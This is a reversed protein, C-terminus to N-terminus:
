RLGLEIMLALLTAEQAELMAAFEAGQTFADVWGNRDRIAAWEPTRYMAALTGEFAAARAPSINPAAFFGRWNLFVAGQAGAQTCTPTAPALTLRRESAICLIRVWNQRVLDIVESFGSALAQTEGSLLGAMAKGGTDYPIYKASRPDGGAGRLVMAAVLHDMGGTVSGGAFAVARPDARQRALLTQLDHIDSDQRVAIVSYDGITSAIPTLDRFSQPFIGRLSRIVIPTSNVMLMTSSGLEILHAIGKGGGGGSMNQYRIRPVLGSQSLAQGIGRATRDWGGGASGPILLHLADVQLRQAVAIQPSTDATAFIPSMLLLVTAFIRTFPRLLAHTPNAISIEQRILLPRAV